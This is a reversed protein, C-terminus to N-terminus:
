VNTTWIICCEEHPMEGSGNLFTAKLFSIPPLSAQNLCFFLLVRWKCAQELPFALHKFLQVFMGVCPGMNRQEWILSKRNIIHTEESCSVIGREFALNFYSSKDGCKCVHRANCWLHMFKDSQWKLWGTSLTRVISGFSGFGRRPSLHMGCTISQFKKFKQREQERERRGDVSFGYMQDWGGPLWGTRPVAARSGLLDSCSISNLRRHAAGM